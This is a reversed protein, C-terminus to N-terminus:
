LQGLCRWSPRLQPLAASGIVPKRGERVNLGRACPGSLRRENVFRRDVRNTSFPGAAKSRPDLMLPRENVELAVATIRLWVTGTWALSSRERACGMSETVASPVIHHMRNVPMVVIVRGIHGHHPVDFGHEAARKEYDM